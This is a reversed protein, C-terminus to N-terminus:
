YTGVVFKALTCVKKKRKEKQGAQEGCFLSVLEGIYLIINHPLADPIHCAGTHSALIFNPGRGLSAECSQAHRMLWEETNTTTAQCKDPILIGSINIQLWHNMLLMRNEPASGAPRDIPCSSMDELEDYRTLLTLEGDKPTYVRPILIIYESSHRREPYPTRKTVM